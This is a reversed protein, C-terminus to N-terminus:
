RRPPNTVIRPEPKAESAVEVDRKALSHGDEGLTIGHVLLLHDEYLVRTAYQFKVHPDRACLECSTM